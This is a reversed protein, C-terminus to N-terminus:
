GTTRPPGILDMARAVIGIAAPKSRLRLDKYPAIFLCFLSEAYITNKRRSKTVLQLVVKLMEIDTALRQTEEIHM